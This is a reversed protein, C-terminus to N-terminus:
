KQAPGLHRFLIEVFKKRVQEATSLASEFSDQQEGPAKLKLNELDAIAKRVQIELNILARSKKKKQLNTEIDELAKTLLTTWTKMEAPLTAFEEKVGAENMADMMRKSASEYIKIRAKITTAKQVKAMERANLVNSPIIPKDQQQFAFLLFASLLLAHM